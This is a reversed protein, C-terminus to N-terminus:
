TTYDFRYDAAIILKQEKKDYMVDGNQTYYWSKENPANGIVFINLEAKSALVQEAVEDDSLAISFTWTSQDQDLQISYSTNHKKSDLLLKGGVTHRIYLHNM